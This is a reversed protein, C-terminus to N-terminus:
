SATRPPNTCAYQRDLIPNRSPFPTWAYQVNRYLSSFDNGIPSQGALPGFADPRQLLALLVMGFGSLLFGLKLLRRYAHTCDLVLGAVLAGM